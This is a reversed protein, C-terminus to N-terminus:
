RVFGVLLVVMLWRAAGAPSWRTAPAPERLIASVGDWSSAPPVMVTAGPVVPVTFTVSELAASLDAPMREASLRRSVVVTSGLRALISRRPLGSPLLANPYPVPVPTISVTPWVSETDPRLTGTWNSALALAGANGM